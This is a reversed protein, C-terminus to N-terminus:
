ARPQSRRLSRNGKRNVKDRLIGACIEVFLVGWHRRVGTADVVRCGQHIHVEDNRPSEDSGAPRVRKTNRLGRIREPSGESRGERLRGQRESATKEVLIRLPSVGGIPTDHRGYECVHAVPM